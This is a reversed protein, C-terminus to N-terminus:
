VFDRLLYKEGKKRLNRRYDLYLCTGVIITGFCAFIYLICAVFNFSAPEDAFGCAILGSPMTSGYLLKSSNTGSM